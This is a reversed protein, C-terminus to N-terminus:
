DTGPISGSQDGDDGDGEYQLQLIISAFTYAMRTRQQETVMLSRNDYLDQVVAMFLIKAKESNENYRGVAGVIYEKASKIMQEIQDDDEDYDIRLYKKVAEKTM